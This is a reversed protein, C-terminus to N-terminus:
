LGQVPYPMPYRLYVEAHYHSANLGRCRMIKKWGGGPLETGMYNGNMETQNEMM